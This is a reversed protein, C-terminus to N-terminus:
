PLLCVYKRLEIRMLTKFEKMNLNTKVGPEDAAWELESKKLDDRDVFYEEPLM